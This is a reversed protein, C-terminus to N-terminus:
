VAEAGAEADKERRLSGKSEGSARRLESGPIFADQPRDIIEVKVGEGRVREAYYTHLAELRAQESVDSDTRKTLLDLDFSPYPTRAPPASDARPQHRPRVLPSQFPRFSWWAHLVDTQSAFILFVAMGVSATLIDPFATGTDGLSGLNALAATLTYLTLVGVRIRFSTDVKASHQRLPRTERTRLQQMALHVFFGAAIICVAASFVAVAITLAQVNVACYFYRTARDVQGPYEVGLKAAIACFVGLTLYPSVILMVRIPWSAKERLQSKGPTCSRWTRYALALTAVSTMPFAGSMLAAQATCLGRPPEPGTTESTYLLLSSLIGSLIWTCCLNIVTSHRVVSRSLAFTMVLIPLFVHDAILQFFLWAALDASASGGLEGQTVRRYHAFEDLAPMDAAPQCAQSPRYPEGRQKYAPSSFLALRQLTRAAHGAKLTTSRSRLLKRCALLGPCASTILTSAAM